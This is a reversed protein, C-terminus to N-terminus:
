ELSRSAWRSSLHCRRASSNVRTTKWHRGSVSGAHIDEAFEVLVVALEDLADNDLQCAPYIFSKQTAAVVGRLALALGALRQDLRGATVPPRNSELRAELNYNRGM